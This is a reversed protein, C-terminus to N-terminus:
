HGLEVLCEELLTVVEAKDGRTDLSPFHYDVILCLHAVLSVVM